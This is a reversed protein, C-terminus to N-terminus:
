PIHASIHTYINLFTDMSSHNTRYKNTQYGFNLLYKVFCRNQFLLGIVGSTFGVCGWFVLKSPDQGMYWKSGFM